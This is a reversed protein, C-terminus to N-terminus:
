LKANRHWTPLVMTGNLFLRLIARCARSSVQQTLVPTGLEPYGPVNITLIALPTVSHERRDIRLRVRVDYVGRPVNKYTATRDSMTLTRQIQGAAPTSYSLTLLAMTPALRACMIAAARALLESIPIGRCKHALRLDKTVFGGAKM